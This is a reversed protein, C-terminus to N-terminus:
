PLGLRGPRTCKYQIFPFPLRKRFIWPRRHRRNPVVTIPLCVPVRLSVIKPSHTHVEDDLLSVLLSWGGLTHFDRTMDVDQLHYELDQLVQVINTIMTTDDDTADITNDKPLLFNQLIHELPDAIYEELSKIREKLIEPFDAFEIQRLEEQRQEWIHKMQAQFQQIEEPSASRLSLVNQSPLQMREREEIPLKSLTRYMMEYDYEANSSSVLVVDETADTQVILSTDMIPKEQEELRKVWKEGTTLDMRVHVGADVTDNEKLLTWEDTAVVEKGSCFCCNSLALSLLICFCLVFTARYNSRM